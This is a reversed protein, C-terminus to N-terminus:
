SSWGQVLEGHTYCMILTQLAGRIVTTSCVLVHLRHPMSNDSLPPRAAFACHQEALVGVLLPVACHNTTTCLVQKRGHFCTFTCSLSQMHNALAVFAAERTLKQLVADSLISQLTRASVLLCVVANRFVVLAHRLVNPVIGFTALLAPLLSLTLIISVATNICVIEGFKNFLPM